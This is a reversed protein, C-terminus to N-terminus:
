TRHKNKISKYTQHKLDRKLIYKTMYSVTNGNVYNELKGNKMSGKWTFGYQWLADLSTLDNVWIIGHLHINETGNHGLETVLWHRPSKKYQKRWRERFRHVAMTAVQNDLAYGEIEEYIENDKEWKRIEEVLEKYKENSFTLTVFKGYTHHKIDELLRVQWERAKKKRCEICNQCGVPVMKTRPDGIPPVVGGNKKNSTYKRNLILRPYLCM